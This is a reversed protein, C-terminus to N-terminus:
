LPRLPLRLTGPASLPVAPNIPQVPDILKFNEGLAPRLDKDGKNPWHAMAWEALATISLSPNVGPNASLASGDVIHLGPQGFARLYGDVVGHDADKGIVAGGLFHATLPIGFPEGIVAGPTGDVDKAIERAVTHGMPVWAPNPEGHGQKSTLRRKWYTTLSNDRSQMVLLILTREPWTRLNYFNPLKPLNKLTVWILRFINPAGGKSGSAVVSQLLGMFGSGKGYRVPEIHTDQDPFVSSTIASGSSFDVSKGKAVVGLLSESNTRSLEGLKSSLGSLKGKSRVSHLLKASGLAGAAVVVEPVELTYKKPFLKDSQILTLRYGNSIQEIDIVKTLPRIETGLKEALYLYNKVLTNKAGHRCGTMCEGCNICGTREPGQGGFYPDSTKKGPEGFYIGLPAMQFSDGFGLRDSAKKLAEDAPSFYKNLEVGLMREAQDYYPDLLKEWDAIDKWSGSKFFRTPPRYLTNAYVLSGGGVGAGSMVLVNKLLDIRQIGKLGLRPFFLFKKLDFSNKAFDKDEFRAGSEIVLVKYGKESLRLAAVSGGFGSGIVAVDFREQM